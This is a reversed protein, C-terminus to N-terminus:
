ILEEWKSLITNMTSDYDRGSSEIQLRLLQSKSCKKAKGKILYPKGDKEKLITVRGFNEVIHTIYVDDCDSIDKTEIRKVSVQELAISYDTNKELPEDILIVGNIKLQFM